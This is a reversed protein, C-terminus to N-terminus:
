YQFENVQSIEYKAKFNEYETQIAEKDKQLRAAQALAKDL